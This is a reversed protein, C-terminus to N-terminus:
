KDDRNNRANNIIAWHFLFFALISIINWLALMLNPFNKSTLLPFVQKNEMFVNFHNLYHFTRSHSPITFKSAKLLALPHHSSTLLFISSAKSDTKTFSTALVTKEM